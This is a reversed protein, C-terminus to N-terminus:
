ESVFVLDCTTHESVVKVVETCTTRKLLGTLIELYSLVYKKLTNMDADHVTGNNDVTDYMEQLRAFINRYCISSLSKLIQLCWCTCTNIVDYLKCLDNFLCLLDVTKVQSNPM